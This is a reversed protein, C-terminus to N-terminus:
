ANVISQAATTSRWQWFFALSVTTYFNYTQLMVTTKNKSIDVQATIFTFRPLSSCAVSLLISLFPVTWLPALGRLSSPHLYSTVPLLRYRHMQTRTHTHTFTYLCPSHLSRMRGLDQTGSPCYRQVGRSRSSRWYLPSIPKKWANTKWTDSKHRTCRHLPKSM